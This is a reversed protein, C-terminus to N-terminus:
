DNSQNSFFLYVLGAVIGTVVVPELIRTWSTEDRAPKTFVYNEDEVRKLLSYDITDDFSKATDGVWIVDGSDMDILKAFIGIEARREVEKAGLWYRRCIKPYTLAMKIIQYSFRYDPRVPPAAAVGGEKSAAVSVRHGRERMTKLLLNEFVFDIDGISKDKSIQIL